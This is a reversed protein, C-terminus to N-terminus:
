SPCLVYCSRVHKSSASPEKGAPCDCNAATIDYSNQNISMLLNYIRDKQMDPHCIARLINKINTYSVEVNQVHGCDYLHKAAKNVLKIDGAPLGDM